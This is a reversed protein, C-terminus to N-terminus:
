RRDKSRPRGVPMATLRKGLSLELNAVFEGTGLPRGTRTSGRIDRLQDEPIGSRLFQVYEDRRATPFLGEGLVDDPTLGGHARASSYPYDEPRRVMAARVPNQEIYRAVAWLYADQDVICSHYRSAWLRGTRRYKRNIHQTYCLTAGQMMKQLSEASSPRGLLHVHDTMLCYCLIPVSWLESYRKLLFLYVGRDEDDFFVTDRNNGRQVLHHPLGPAIARAIRPM